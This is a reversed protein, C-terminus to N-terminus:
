RASSRSASRPSGATPRITGERAIRRIDAASGAGQLEPYRRILQQILDIQELTAQVAIGREVFESPVFAAFFQADVGGARLRPIDTHGDRHRTGIDFRDLDSDFEDRLRWALDNHGDILIATEHLEALRGEDIV